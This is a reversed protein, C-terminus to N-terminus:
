LIEIKKNSSSTMHLNFPTGPSPVLTHAGEPDVGSETAFISAINPYKLLMQYPGM